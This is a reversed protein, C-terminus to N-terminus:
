RIQHSEEFNQRCRYPHRRNQCPSNGRNKLIDSKPGILEEEAKVIAGTHSFRAEERAGTGFVAVLPTTFKGRLLLETAREGQTTGM